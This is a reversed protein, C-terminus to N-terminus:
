APMPASNGPQGPDGPNEPDDPTDKQKKAFLCVVLQVLAILVMLLTWRDVLIMPQRMDETLIFAVLSGLAPVLSLLRVGGHRKKTWEYVTNGEADQVINGDDDRLEKQKKGMFGILLLLSVLVTCVMLILNVLAWASGRLGALPTEGEDLDEGGPGLPTDGGPLDEAEPGAPAAPEGGGGPGPVVPVAVPGPAPTDPGTPAPPVPDDPDTPGAPVAPDDNFEEVWFEWNVAATLGQLENGMTIPVTLTLTLTTEAGYAFDGLTIWGALPVTQSLPATFLPDATGAQQVTLTLQELLQQAAETQGAEPGAARLHVRIPWEGAAQNRITINQTRTDGPMLNKFGDFLDTPNQNTGPTFVFGAAEGNYTVSSDAFAPLAAALCLALCLALTLMRKITKNM